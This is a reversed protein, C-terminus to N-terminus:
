TTIARPAPAWCCATKRTASVPLFTAILLFFFFPLTTLERYARVQSRLLSTTTNSAANDSLAFDAVLFPLLAPFKEELLSM